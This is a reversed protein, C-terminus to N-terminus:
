SGHYGEGLAGELVTGAPGEPRRASGAPEQNPAAESVPVDAPLDRLRSVVPALSGNVTRTASDDSLILVLDRGPELPRLVDTAGEPVGVEDIKVLQAVAEGLGGGARREVRMGKKAQITVWGGEDTVLGVDDVPRNTQGGVAVVRRGSAWRPLPDETLMYAAAWALCRGEHGVGGATRTGGASSRGM